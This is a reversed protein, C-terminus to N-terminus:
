TAKKNFSYLNEIRSKVREYKRGSKSLFKSKVYYFVESKFCNNFRQFEEILFTDFVFNFVESGEDFIKIEHQPFVIDIIELNTDEYLKVKTIIAKMKLSTVKKNFYVIYSSFAKEELIEFVVKEIPTKIEM